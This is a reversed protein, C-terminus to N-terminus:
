IIVSIPFNKFGVFGVLFWQYNQVIDGFLMTFIM